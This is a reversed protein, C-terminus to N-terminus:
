LKNRLSYFAIVSGIFIMVWHLFLFLVVFDLAYGEFFYKIQLLVATVTAIGSSKILISKNRLLFYSVAIFLTGYIIKNRFYRDPVSYEDSLSHSYFDLAYFFAMIFAIAIISYLVKSYNYKKYIKKPM